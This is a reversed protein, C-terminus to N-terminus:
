EKTRSIRIAPSRVADVQAFVGAAQSGLLLLALDLFRVM